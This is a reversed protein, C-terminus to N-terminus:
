EKGGGERGEEIAHIFPELDEWRVDERDGHNDLKIKWIVAGGPEELRFSTVIGRGPIARGAADRIPSDFAYRVHRAEAGCVLATGEELVLFGTRGEAIVPLLSYVDRLAVPDQETSKESFRAAWAHDGVHEAGRFRFTIIDEDLEVGVLLFKGPDVSFGAAGAAREMAERNSLYERSATRLLMCGPALSMLVGAAMCSAAGRIGGGKWTSM